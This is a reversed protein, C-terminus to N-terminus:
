ARGATWASWEAPTNLNRATDPWSVPVRAAGRLADRLTGARLADQAEGVNVVVPHGDEGGWTPVAPGGTALLADLIARPAPPSDVPTIIARWAAPAGDLACCLSDRPGTTAWAPNLVAEVGPPLAAIVADAAGGVVVRVRGCVAGFGTAHWAVLPRGDLDLLAKPHGMRSSAGAALVVGLVEPLMHWKTM